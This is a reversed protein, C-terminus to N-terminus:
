NSPEGAAGRGAKALGRILAPSADMGIGLAFVRTPVAATVRTVLAIVEDTNGVEGDTMVILQRPFLPNPAPGLIAELAPLVDTGGLTAEFGAVESSARAFTEQTLPVSAPFLRRFSSGFSVVNFLTTQAPLSRLLIQISSKTQRMRSGSMSGSRDVLLIVETQVEEGKSDDLSIRPVFAIQVATSNGDCEVAPFPLGPQNFRVALRLERQLSSPELSAALGKDTREVKIPHQSLSTVAAADVDVVHLVCDLGDVPWAVTMPLEVITEQTTEDLAAEALFSFTITCQTKPALNGLSLVFCHLAAEALFGTGGASIADEYTSLAQKKEEARSVIVRGGIEVKVVRLECSFARLCIEGVKFGYCLIDDGRYRFVAEIPVDLQNEFTAKYEVDLNFDSLTASVQARKLVAVLSKDDKSTVEIPPAVVPPPLTVPMPAVVSAVRPAAPAALAVHPEPPGNNDFYASLAREVDGGADALFRTAVDAEAGTVAVFADVNAM